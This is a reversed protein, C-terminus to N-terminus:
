SLKAYSQLIICVHTNNLTEMACISICDTGQQRESKHHYSQFKTDTEVYGGEYLM